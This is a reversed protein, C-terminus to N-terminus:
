GYRGSLPLLYFDSTVLRFTGKEPTCEVELVIAGPALAGAAGRLTQRLQRRLVNRTTSGASHDPQTRRRLAAPSPALEGGWSEEQGGTLEAIFIAKMEQLLAM